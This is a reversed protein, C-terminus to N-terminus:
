KEDIETLLKLLIKYVDAGLFIFEDIGSKKHEEIQDKPYGALIVALGSKISKIKQVLYGSLYLSSSIAGNIENPAEGLPLIFRARAEFHWANTLCRPYTIGSSTLSTM